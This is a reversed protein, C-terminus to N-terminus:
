YVDCIRESSTRGEILERRILMSSSFLLLMVRVAIRPPSIIPGFDKDRWDHGRAKVDDVVELLFEVVVIDYGRKM